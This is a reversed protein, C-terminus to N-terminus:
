EGPVLLGSLRLMEEVVEKEDELLEPLFIEMPDIEDNEEILNMVLCTGAIAEWVATAATLDAPLSTDILEVVARATGPLVMPLSPGMVDVVEVVIGGRLMPFSASTEETDTVVSRRTMVAVRRMELVDDTKIRLATVGTALNIADVVARAAILTTPLSNAMADVM